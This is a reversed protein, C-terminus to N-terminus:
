GARRVANRAGAAGESGPRARAAEGGLAACQGRRARVRLRLPQLHVHRAAAAAEAAGRRPKKQAAQLRTGARGAESESARASARAM